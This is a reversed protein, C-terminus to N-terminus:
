CRVCNGTRKLLASSRVIVIKLERVSAQARHLEEELNCITDFSTANESSLGRLIAM